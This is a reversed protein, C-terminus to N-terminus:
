CAFYADPRSGSKMQSVLIGCGNYVTIVKVGERKEFERITEEIAPRLMAGAYLVIEPTVGAADGEELVTFGRERFRKLGKDRAAVYRAFRLPETPQPSSKVVGILVRATVRDLEPLHVVKLEPFQAAVADWVIGADPNGLKVANAVETVTGSFVTTREKLADWHGTTLLKERTLKGIAAGDPNAQAVKISGGVLDDWTTIDKDFGPRLVLVATIRALPFVEAILGKERAQDIYVEDAPLFLDGSGTIQLQSLVQQSNGFRLEVAQGTERQYDKVIDELPPRQSAACHVILPGANPDPGPATSGWNLWALLVALLAVSGGFAFWAPHILRFM